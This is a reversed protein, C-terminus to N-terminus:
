IFTSKPYIVPGEMRGSRVEMEMNKRRANKKTPNSLLQDRALKNLFLFNIWHPSFLFLIFKREEVFVNFLIYKNIRESTLM